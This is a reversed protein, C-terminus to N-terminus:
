NEALSLLEILEERSFSKLQSQDDASVVEEMLEGKKEIMADIREELTGLTLLKFVQVGRMQGLRHVRDTAQNERAANWWRDYHIVVSAATLDIGLGAAQLSGLFVECMPDKEFRELQKGRDQTSGRITAYGIGHEKLYIEIIDLMGLYHSFVVVKQRSERAQSLLETFLDWKGSTYSQYGKANKHHVAPHDCIQKLATLIAFVHVVPPPKEGDELEHILKERTRSLTENYLTLQEDTLTCLAKEEFKEPLETLVDEKRRRLTFPKIISRLLAKQKEDGDREIPLVFQEKFLKEGPLYTPLVIDFLAKLERLTNEIPTGTLGLSMRAQVEILAKHTLSSANKAVQIEDYVAVEFPIKAIREKEQRLVGYSTLLVDHEPLDVLSRQAGHFVLVKLSPLFAKLKERWHYIVSTPCVVLYQPQDADSNNVAAMLAMAQHTKGLGMDDCLLGSLRNKYLFWLWDLGFKQYSRLTSQLGELNAKEIVEFNQLSDILSSAEEAAELPETAILRMLELTTLRIKDGEKEWRGAPLQRLWGFQPEELDLLGAESFLYHKRKAIARGIDATSASGLMSEYALTLNFVGPQVEEARECLLRKLPVKKLKSDIKSIFPRLTELEYAVFLYIDKGKILHERGYRPPLRVESPIECFGHEQVYVWQDFFIVDRKKVDPLLHYKPTVKIQGRATMAVKISAKSVPQLDGFFGEILELDDRNMQIFLPVEDHPVRIGPRVPGRKGASKSYFGQGEIYIWEGFDHGTLSGEPLDLRSQIYLADEEVRFALQSELTTLHTRFGELGNLWVRNKHVFSTVEDPEVIVEAGEFRVKELPYFGDDDLYAWNGFLRSNRELLDGPTFLYAKVHLRWAGDFAIEYKPRVKETHVTLHHSVIESSEDLLKEVLKPPIVARTLLSSREKSYFGDGPVFLWGDCDIGESPGEELKVGERPIIEMEGTRPRYEIREIAEDEFDHVKLPSKVSGLYPILLGLNAQSLYFRVKGGKFTSLIANPLGEEGYEFDVAVKKLFLFKALDSWFSLEYRLQASPRGERWLQLEEHSLGSFKLSNEETQAVRQDIMVDFDGELRFLERGSPSRIVWGEEKELVSTEYGQRDGFIQCLQNWLSREFRRGLPEGGELLFALASRLHICPDEEDCSCFADRVEGKEGLQVFPWVDGVEVQYTQGSFEVDGVPLLKESM